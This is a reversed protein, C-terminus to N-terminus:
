SALPRRREELLRLARDGSAGNGGREGGSARATEGDGPHLEVFRAYHHELTVPGRQGSRIVVEESTHRLCRVSTGEHLGLEACRDRVMGFHIRRVRVEIGPEATALSYEPLASFTVM